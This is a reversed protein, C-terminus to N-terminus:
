ATHQPICVQLALAYLDNILTGMAAVTKNSRRIVVEKKNLTTSYVNQAAAKVSFLHASADPVYWFNKLIADHWIGNHFMQVNIMSQGYAQMLVNKKGLVITEPNAFKTYSVFYHENPTIHWTASSDCYWTDADVSSARSTGMVHVLFADNNKKAAMKGSRNGAHQQKQPCEVAWHGLQKCKNCPFKQKEHDAGSRMSKGSNVKMSNLKKKDNEHAVLATAEASALKDAQLEIAYLKEILLNVTQTSTPITDWVGKFNNYEKGLTFL